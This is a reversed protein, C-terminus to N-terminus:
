AQRRICVPKGARDTLTCDIHTLPAVDSPEEVTLDERVGAFYRLLVTAPGGSWAHNRTGLHFFDEWLTSNPSEILPRYRCMMRRYADAKYGMECLAILVYNEMYPTAHFVSLLLYRIQPYKEEGCLGALVAMANARDDVWDGNSSFFGGQARWYRAEFTAEIAAARAQLFDDFRRDNLEDAMFRAFRLASYFWTINLIEKDCNYLHDYWEWGGGRPLVVGEGDTEWLMLYRVAPEFVQRLIERDGTARYYTAVMGWQSIANLSQSPLEGAHAGPVNGMLVDGARLHIFDLISKRLLLLGKDGLLYAVQPAQVSVDGIWQGRERDPCDMYNERMCVLLTRVSKEFLINAAPDNCTFATTVDCDYRSERYGLELVEVGDPITFILAEGFVWDMM